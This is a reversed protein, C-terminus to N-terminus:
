EVGLEEFNNIKKADRFSILCKKLEEYKDNDMNQFIVSYSTDKDGPIQTSVIILAFAKQSELDSFEYYSSGLEVERDIKKQIISSPDVLDDQAGRFEINPYAKILNVKIKNILEKTFEQNADFTVMFPKEIKDLSDERASSFGGAFCHFVCLLHVIVTITKM